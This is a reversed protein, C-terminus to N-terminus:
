YDEDDGEKDSKTATTSARLCQPQQPSSSKAAGIPGSTSPSLNSRSYSPRQSWGIPPPTPHHLNRGLRHAPRSPPTKSRVSHRSRCHPPLPASPASPRHPRSYAVARLADDGSLPHRRPLPYSEAWTPPPFIYPLLFPITCYQNTLQHTDYGPLLPPDTLYRVISTPTMTPITTPSRFNNIYM